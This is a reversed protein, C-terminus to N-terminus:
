RPKGLVAISQGLAAFKEDVTGSDYHVPADLPIFRDPGDRVDVIELGLMEAWAAIAAREIFVNFTRPRHTRLHEVTAEFVNWHARLGLEYFSFVIRGGPVLVRRAEELYVYTHEHLLHTFVSFFCVMDASESPAPITAVAAREFRFNSVKVAKRASRLFTGIVDTGLYPGRLYDTLGHALRGPGCGVDILSADPQLGYYRLIAAEVAGIAAFSGGIAARLRADDPFPRLARRM